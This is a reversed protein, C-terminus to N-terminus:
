LTSWLKSIYSKNIKLLLPEIFKLNKGGKIHIQHTIFASPVKESYIGFRNDSVIHTIGYEKILPQLIHHEKKIAQIIGPTQLMM